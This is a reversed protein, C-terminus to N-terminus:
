WYHTIDVNKPTFSEEEEDLKKKYHDILDKLADVDYEITSGNDQEKKLTILHWFAEIVARYMPKPDSVDYNDDTQLGQEALLLELKGEAVEYPLIYNKIAELNSM